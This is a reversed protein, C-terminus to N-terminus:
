EDLRNYKKLIERVRKHPLQFVKHDDVGKMTEAAVLANIIAEETAEATATFLDDLEGNALMRVSHVGKPRTGRTNATSFALFLDGSGNEGVGGTRAVGLAGRRALRKLQHPLVPADTAIVVIISGQRRSQKRDAKKSSDEELADDEEPLERGVPVGAIRLQPRDGFNSQVLVGVTYLSEKIKVIRSATGIGGKFAFCMMGTGGGVNGERVRGGKASNLANFVNQRKVHFGKIDNLYGDWTEAVVPLAGFDDDYKDLGLKEERDRLWRLVGDRVTGVSYTNTLTIPGELMGSEEVWLTGTMEGNGNLPFSGAFVPAVDKKGRPFIATVGTRVPGQGVKLKGKGSNLTEHGIEVGKVDTIANLPGPTGDFPIALDRAREGAFAVPCAALFLCVIRLRVSWVPASAPCTRM